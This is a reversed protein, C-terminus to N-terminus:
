SSSSQESSKRDGDRGNKPSDFKATARSFCRFGNRRWHLCDDGDGDDDDGNDDDEDDNDDDVVIGGDDGEDDDLDRNFLVSLM